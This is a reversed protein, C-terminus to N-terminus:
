ISRQKIVDVMNTGVILMDDVCLCIVVGYESTFKFNIYKDAINHKFGYELIM